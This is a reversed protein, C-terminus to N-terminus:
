AELMPRDLVYWAGDAGEAIDGIAHRTMAFSAWGQCVTGGSPNYIWGGEAGHYGHDKAWAKAAKIKGRDGQSSRQGPHRRSMADRYPQGLLSSWRPDNAARVMLYRIHHIQRRGRQLTAVQQNRYRRANDLREWRNIADDWALPATMATYGVIHGQSEIAAIVFHLDGATVQNFRRTPSAIANTM